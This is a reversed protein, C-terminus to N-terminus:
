NEESETLIILKFNSTDLYADVINKNKPTYQQVLEYYLEKSQILFQLLNSLYKDIMAQYKVVDKQLMSLISKCNEHKYMTQILLDMKPDQIDIVTLKM